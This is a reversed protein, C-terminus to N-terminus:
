AKRDTLNRDVWKAVAQELLSTATVNASLAALILNMLLKGEPWALFQRRDEPPRSGKRYGSGNRKRKLWEQVAEEVLGSAGTSREIAEM